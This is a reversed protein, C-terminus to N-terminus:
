RSSSRSEGGMQNAFWQKPKLVKWDRQDGDMALGVDWRGYSVYLIGQRRPGGIRLKGQILAPGGAVAMRDITVGGAGVAVDAVAGVGQIDLLRDLWNLLRGRREAPAAFAFIPRPDSITSELRARLLTPSGPELVARDLHARAWWNGQAAGAIRVRSVDLKTGSVDFHRGQFDAQRLPVRLLIDGQLPRGEVRASVGRAELRLGGQAAWDPAAARFGASIRGSGGTLELGSAPPLYANYFALRPVEASPMEVAFSRPSFLALGALRPEETRATIRLGRGRVHPEGYGKRIVQFAGFGLDLRGAGDPLVEWAIRGPGYARYDLVRAALLKQRADLRSGPLLRGRRVRLDAAIRGGEAELALWRTRSLYEELFALSPVVGEMRARGSLFRVSGWGHHEAPSYPSIEGDVRGRADSLIPRAQPGAGLSLSGSLIELRTPDIQLRRWIQMDFGGAVRAAGAFRIEDIWIERVDDLDVQAIRIRWPEPRPQGPPRRPKPYIKEPPRAPPNSLGPISPEFEPRPRRVWRPNDIRRALRFAVGSGSLGDVVFERAYLDFLRITFTGRDMSAWWQSTATQNRIRFGRVRVVGPWPTWASGVQILLREPRRNLRAELDGSRLYWNGAILYLPYLAAAALALGTLLRLVFRKM